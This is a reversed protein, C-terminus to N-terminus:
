KGQKIQLREVELHLKLMDTIKDACNCAANVTDPTVEKKTVKTMLGELTKVVKKTTFTDDDTKEVLESM